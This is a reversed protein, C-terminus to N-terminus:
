KFLQYKKTEYNTIIIETRRNKLNTREAIKTITLNNHKALEIIGPQDFECIMFKIKSDILYEQLEAHDKITWEPTDYNNTTGCYPPDAFIFSKESDNIQQNSRIMFGIKSLVEKYDVNLYNIETIDNSALYKMYNKINILLRRKPSVLGLHLTNPKGMYGFNSYYLFFMARRADSEHEAGKYHKWSELGVPLMEIEEILEEPGNQLVQYLNFVNGDLDNAFLYKIKGIFNNEFSGTGYFLSIMCDFRPVHRMLIPATVNKKGLRRLPNNTPYRLM